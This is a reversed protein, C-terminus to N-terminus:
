PQYEKNASVSRKYGGTHAFVYTVYELYNNVMKARGILGHFM